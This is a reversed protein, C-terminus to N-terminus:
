FVGCCGLSYNVPSAPGPRPILSPTHISNIQGFTDRGACIQYISQKAHLPALGFELCLPPKLLLYHQSQPLCVMLSHSKSRPIQTLPEPLFGINGMSTQGNSFQSNRFHAYCKKPKLAAVTAIALGGWADTSQQSHAILKSPLATISKTMHTLDTDDVYIAAAIMFPRQTYSTQFCAGHGECLYVNVIQASFALFGPGAAANGQGLGLTHDKISRDYSEASEGFDTCLFFRMTQMASLLICVPEPIGWSQLTISAPM